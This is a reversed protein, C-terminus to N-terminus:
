RLRRPVVRGLALLGVLWLAMTGTEPVPAFNSVLDGGGLAASSFAGVPADVATLKFTNYFDLQFGNGAAADVEGFALYRHGAVADFSLTRQDVFSIPFDDNNNQYRAQYLAVTRPILEDSCEDPDDCPLLDDLDYVAFTASFYQSSSTPESTDTNAPFIILCNPDGGCPQARGISGDLAM